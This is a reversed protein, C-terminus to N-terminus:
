EPRVSMIGGVQSMPSNGVDQGDEDVVGWQGPMEEPFPWQAVLVERVTASPPGRILYERQHGELRVVRVVVDSDPTDPQEIFPMRTVFSTGALMTNVALCMASLFLVFTAPVVVRPDLPLVHHGGLYALSLGVALVILGGACIRTMRGVARTM